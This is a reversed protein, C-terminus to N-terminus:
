LPVTYLAKCGGYYGATVHCECWDEGVSGRGTLVVAQTYSSETMRTREGVNGQGNAHASVERRM